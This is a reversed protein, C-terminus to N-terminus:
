TLPYDDGAERRITQALLELIRARNRVTGGFEDRRRNYYPTLFQHIFKANSSPLQIGDYGAERAWAACTGFVDALEYIERTSLIKLPVGRTAARVHVPPKSVALVPGSRERAYAAHWAEMSYIGAHGIQLFIRGGHRHVAETVPTLALMRERP